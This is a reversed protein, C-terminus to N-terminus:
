HRSCLLIDRGKQQQKRFSRPMMAPEHGGAGAGAAKPQTKEAAQGAAVTM